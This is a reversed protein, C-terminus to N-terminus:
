GIPGRFVQQILRLWIRAALPSPSIVLQRNELRHKRSLSITGEGDILGAIYAAEVPTLTKAKRYIAM